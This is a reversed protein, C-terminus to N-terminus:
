APPKNGQPQSPTALGTEYALVVTQVRDRLQLKALIRAVHTKVTAESLVLEDALEANSLGRALLRLVLVVSLSASLDPLVSASGGNPITLLEEVTIVL